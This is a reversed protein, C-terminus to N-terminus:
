QKKQTLFFTQFIIKYWVFWFLYILARSASFLCINCMHVYINLLSDCYSMSQWNSLKWQAVTLETNSTGGRSHTEAAKWFVCRLSFFIFIRAPPPNLCKYLQGIIFNKKETLFSQQRGRQKYSECIELVSSHIIGTHGCSQLFPEKAKQGVSDPMIPPKFLQSSLVLVTKVFGQHSAPLGLSHM